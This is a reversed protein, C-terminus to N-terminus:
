PVLKRSVKRIKNIILQFMNKKDAKLHHEYFWLDAERDAFIRTNHVIPLINGTPMNIHPDEPGGSHTGVIGINSVLNTNPIVAVGGSRWVSFQWQYDWTDIKGKAMRDYIWRWYSRETKTGFRIEMLAGFERRTLSHVDFDYKNWARRWTAWGWVHAYSSFYYSSGGRKLGDQFNTSGIHMVKEEDRYRELMEVCYPFFEPAPFCDDELIIGEPEHEFFWSIAGSVARGCGLNEERFLTKVECPWDVATAISRVEACLEAEGARGNRPGDAAVYLSAPRVARLAGFVRATSDPRNFVIFLVPTKM